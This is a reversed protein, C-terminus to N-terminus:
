NDRDCRCETPPSRKKHTRNDSHDPNPYTIAPEPIMGPFHFFYRSLFFLEDFLVAGKDTAVFRKLPPLGGSIWHKPCQENGIETNLPCIIKKQAPHRIIQLFPFM